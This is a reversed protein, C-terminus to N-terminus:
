KIDKNDKVVKRITYMIVASHLEEELLKEQLNIRMFPRVLSKSEEICEEFLKKDESIM